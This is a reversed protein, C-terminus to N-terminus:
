KGSEGSTPIMALIKSLLDPPLKEKLFAIVGTVFKHLQEPTFGAKALAALVAAAGGGGGIMKGLTGLLGGGSAQEGEKLMTASDPIADAVQTYGDDPLEGKLAALLAGLGQKAQDISVGSQGALQALLDAM